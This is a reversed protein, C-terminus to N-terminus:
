RLPIRLGFSVVPPAAYVTQPVYVPAPAYYAPAPATYVPPAYYAPPFYYSYPAAAVVAVRHHPHHWYGHHAFAPSALGLTAGGALMLITKKM